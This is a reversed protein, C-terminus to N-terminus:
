GSEARASPQHSIVEESSLAIKGHDTAISVWKIGPRFRTIRVGPVSAVLRATPGTVQGLVVEEIGKVEGRHPATAAGPHDAPAVEWEIFFPLRQPGLMGALGALRWSLRVGDTRIRDMALPTEELAAAPVAIDETRLCVALPALDTQQHELVWRGMPSAAAETADVVGMLELYSGGLPVIRNATGHGSHRGGPVSALGYRDFLRHAAADLDTVVLIVHDIAFM